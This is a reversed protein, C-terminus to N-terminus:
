AMASPSITPCHTVSGHDLIAPNAGVGRPDFARVQSPTLQGVGGATTLYKVTGERLSATPVVRIEGQESADRRAEYNAFFFLRDHRVPGGLSAGFVNRILKPRTVGAQNNFFDNASTITNRHFEYASGHFENTGSKTVLSIQAGSSRGLDANAGVTVVRFEQISDLTNRLVSTFALRTSQDNVDVGDLTVNAQDSRSGNVSGNRGDHFQPAQSDGTLFTVGSQLSLLGAVNRAEIPLQTIARSDFANGKTADVSNLATGGSEITITEAQQGVELRIDVAAAQAAEIVLHKQEFSKFGSATAMLTYTGSRLFSFVYLGEQNSIAQRVTGTGDRTLTIEANQIVAGSPDIVRGSVAASQAVARNACIITGYLLILFGICRYVRGAIRAAVEWAKM